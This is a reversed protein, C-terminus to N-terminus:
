LPTDSGVRTPAEEGLATLIARARQTWDNERAEALISERDYAGDLAHRIGRVFDDPDEAVYVSRYKRCEPLATSVVPLGSAMYEFLKVPSTSLTINCVLFPITAVSFRAAYSPLAHYPRPGLFHVNPLHGWSYQQRRNENEPGILVFNLDSCQAAAHRLLEYDFWPGLLGYYGVIPQDLLPQLDPPAPASPQEQFFTYDAANPCLIADPRTRAVRSLLRHATVSVVTARRLLWEHDNRMRAPPGSWIELEDVHDYIVKQRSFRYSVLRRQPPWHVYVIADKIHAVEAPTRCLYLLPEVASLEAPGRLGDPGCYFVLYGQRAFARALQQFRGFLKFDWAQATGTMLMIVIGKRGPNRQIISRIRQRASLASFFGSSAYRFARLEYRLDRLRALISDPIISKLLSRM